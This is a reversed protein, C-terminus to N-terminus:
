LAKPDTLPPSVKVIDSVAVAADASVARLELVDKSAWITKGLSGDGAPELFEGALIVKYHGSLGGETPFLLLGSGDPMDITNPLGLGPTWAVLNVTKVREFEM